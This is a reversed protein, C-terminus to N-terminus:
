CTSKKKKLKILTYLLYLFSRVYADSLPLFLVRALVKSSVYSRESIMEKTYCCIAMSKKREFQCLAALNFSYLNYEMFNMKILRIFYVLTSTAKLMDAFIFTRNM